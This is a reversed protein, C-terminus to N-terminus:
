GSVSGDHEADAQVEAVQDDIAVIKIAIAHVHRCPQLRFRRRAADHNRTVHVIGDCATFAAKTGRGLWNLAQGGNRM